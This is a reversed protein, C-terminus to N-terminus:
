IARSRLADYWSQQPSRGLRAAAFDGEAALGLCRRASEDIPPWAWIATPSVTERCLPFRTCILEIAPAVEGKQLHVAGLMHLADFNAPDLM